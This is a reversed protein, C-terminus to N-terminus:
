FARAYRLSVTEAGPNPQSIGGNSYHSFNLSIENVGFRYGLGLRDEFQLHTNLDTQDSWRTNSLYALGVGIEAFFSDREQAAGPDFRVVPMLVVRLSQRGPLSSYGAGLNLRTYFDGASWPLKWALGSELDERLSGQHPDVVAGAQLYWQDLAIAPSGSLCLLLGTVGLMEKRM